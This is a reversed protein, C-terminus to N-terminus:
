VPRFTEATVEARAMRINACVDIDGGGASVNWEEGFLMALVPSHAACLVRAAALREGGVVFTVDCLDKEDLISSIAALWGANVTTTPAAAAAASEPQPEDAAGASSLEM